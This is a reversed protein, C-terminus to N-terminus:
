MSSFVTSGNWEEATAEQESRCLISSLFPFIAWISNCPSKVRSQAKHIGRTVHYWDCAYVTFCYANVWDVLWDNNRQRPNGSWCIPGLASILCQHPSPSHRRKRWKGVLRESNTMRWGFRGLKNNALWIDSNAIQWGFCGLKNNALWFTQTQWKGILRGLKSNALWFTLPQWKVLSFM